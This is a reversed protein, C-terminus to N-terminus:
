DFITENYNVERNGFGSKRLLYLLVILIWFLKFKFMSSSSISAIAMSPIIAFYISRMNVNIKLNFSGMWIYAFILGVVFFFIIGYEALIEFFFNHINMKLYHISQGPGVGFGYSKIFCKVAGQILHWRYFDSTENGSGSFRSIVFNVFDNIAGSIILIILIGCMIFVLTKLLLTASNSFYKFYVQSFVYFIFYTIVALTIGRSTSKFICIVAVVILEDLLFSRKSRNNRFIIVGALACYMTTAYENVNSCLGRVHNADWYSSAEVFHVGFVIEIFGLFTNILLILLIPIYIVNINKNLRFDFLYLVFIVTAFNTILQKIAMNYLEVDAIINKQIVAYVIWLFFLGWILRKRRDFMHHAKRHSAIINFVLILFALIAFIYVINIGAISIVFGLGNLFITAAILLNDEKVKKLRVM